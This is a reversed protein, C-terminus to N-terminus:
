LFREKNTEKWNKKEGEQHRRIGPQDIKNHTM